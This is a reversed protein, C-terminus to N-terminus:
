IQQLYSCFYKSIRHMVYRAKWVPVVTKFSSPDSHIKPMTHYTQAGISTNVLAESMYHFKVLCDQAATALEENYKSSKEYKQTDLNDELDYPNWELSNIRGLVIIILIVFSHIVM